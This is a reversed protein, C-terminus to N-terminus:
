VSFLMGRWTWGAALTADRLPTKLESSSFNYNYVEGSECTETFSYGAGWSREWLQGSTTESSWAAGGLGISWESTASRDLSQVEHKSPALRMLVKFSKKLGAARLIGCWSAETHWEAVLDVGEPAGDRIIFPATPRNIALLAARVEGATKQPVGPAAQKTGTLLDFLGM